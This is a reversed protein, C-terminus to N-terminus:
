QQKGERLRQLITGRIFLPIGLLYRRWLRRPEHFVRYVWELGHDAMWRPPVGKSGSLYDIIAGGFLVVNCRLKALNERAWHEQLPMGFCVLLLNPKVSNILEIVGGSGPGSKEFYGHHSGVVKLRPHKELVTDVAKGANGKEGGLFFISFGNAECFGFLDWVWYTLSIRPPPKAGLIRAGVRVGSGDCYVLPVENLFDMFMRDGQAINITHINVNAFCVKEGTRLVDAITRYLQEKDIVDVPVGLISVRDM